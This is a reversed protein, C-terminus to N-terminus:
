TNHRSSEGDDIDLGNQLKTEELTDLLKLLEDKEFDFVNRVTDGAAEAERISGLMHPSIDPSLRKKLFKYLGGPPMTLAVSLPIHVEEAVKSETTLIDEVRWHTGLISELADFISKYRDQEVKRSWNRLFILESTTLDKVDCPRYGLRAMVEGRLALEPDDM